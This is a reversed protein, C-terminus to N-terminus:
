LLSGWVSALVAPGITATITMRASASGGSNLQNCNNSSCCNTQSTYNVTLFLSNVTTNCTTTNDLCGQTSFGGFSPLSPFTAKGTYCVSSDSTCTQQKPFFCFGVLGFPCQNCTLSEVLMFSAVAAILGFLVKAM